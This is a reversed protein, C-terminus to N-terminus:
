ILKSYNYTTVENSTLGIQGLVIYSASQTARKVRNLRTRNRKKKWKKTKTSDM